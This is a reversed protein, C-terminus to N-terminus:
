TRLKECMYSLRKNYNQEATAKVFSGANIVLNVQPTEVMPLVFVRYRHMDDGAAPLDSQLNQGMKTYKPGM